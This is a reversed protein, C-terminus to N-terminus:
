AQVILRVTGDALVLREEVYGSESEVRKLMIEEGYAQNLAGLGDKSHFDTDGQVVGTSFNLTAGAMPGNTIRYGDGEDIFGWSKKKLAKAAATRDKIETSLTVRHSM